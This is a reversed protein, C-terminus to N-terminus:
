VRIGYFNYLDMATLADSTDLTYFPYKLANHIRPWHELKEEDAWIVVVQLIIKQSLM